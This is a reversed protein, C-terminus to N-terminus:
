ISKTFFAQDLLHKQNYSSHLVNQSHILFFKEARKQTEIKM